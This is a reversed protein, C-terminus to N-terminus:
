EISVVKWWLDRGKRAGLVISKGDPSFVPPKIVGDFPYERILRGEEDALITVWKGEKAAQYLLRSGDPSFVPRSVADYLQGEKGDLIILGKGQRTAGVAVKTGDPSFVPPFLIDDATFRTERNGIVIFTQGGRVAVYAIRRGDPSITVHSVNDYPTGTEGGEVSTFDSVIVFWKNETRAGHAIRAKDPSIAFSGIWDYAIGTKIQKMDTSSVIRVSKGTAFNQEISTVFRSDASFVPEMYLMDTGPSERDGIVIHWKRDKEAEYAVAQSDPSFVPDDVARYRKGEIGNVVIFEEGRRGAVYAISRTDPSLVLFKVKDYSKGRSGEFFVHEEGGRGASYVVKKGDTSFVIEGVEYGEPITALRTEAAQPAALSVVPRTLTLEQACAGLIFAIFVIYIFIITSHKYTNRM